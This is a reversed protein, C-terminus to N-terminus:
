SLIDYAYAGLDASVVVHDLTMAAEYTDAQISKDEWKFAGVGFKNQAFLNWNFTYGAAPVMIGPKKPVYVLLAKETGQIFSYDATDGKAATNYVSESVLVEDLGLLKAAQQQDVIQITNAGLAGVVNPHMSFVDWVDGTFVIKNPKHGTLGQITRMWSKVDQIPTATATSWKTFDTTGQKQTTWLGSAFYGANWLLERKIAMKLALFQLAQKDLDIPKDQNKRDAWFLDKGFDYRECAYSGTSMKYDGKAVKDGKARLQAGDKFWDARDIINYSGKEQEVPVQPFVRHSVFMDLDQMDAIIINALRKESNYVMTGTPNSM